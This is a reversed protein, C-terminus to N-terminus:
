QYRITLNFEVTPNNMLSFAWGLGIVKNSTLLNVFDHELM